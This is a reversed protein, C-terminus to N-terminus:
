KKLFSVKIPIFDSFSACIFAIPVWYAFWTTSPRTLPYKGNTMLCVVGFFLWIVWLHYISKKRKVAALFCLGLNISFLVLGVIGGMRFIALAINHSHDFAINSAMLPTSKRSAGQGFWFNDLAEKFSESWIDPRYPMSLGKSFLSKAFDSSLLVVLLLCFAVIPIIHAALHKRINQIQFYCFPILTIFLAFQPGRAKSLFILAMLPISLVVYIFKHKYNHNEIMLWFCSLLLLGALM